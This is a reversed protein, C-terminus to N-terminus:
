IMSVFSILIRKIIDMIFFAIIPSFDIMMGGGIPSKDIMNRIPGLIPETLTYLLAGIGSGRNIMPFWSLLIRAMLLMYIVQFFMDIAKPLIGSM